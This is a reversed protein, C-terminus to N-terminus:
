TWEWKALNEVILKSLAFNKFSPEKLLKMAEANIEAIDFLEDNIETDEEMLDMFKDCFKNFDKDNNILDFVDKDFNKTSILGNKTVLFKSLPTEPESYEFWELGYEAALCLYKVFKITAFRLNFSDDSFQSKAFTADKNKKNEKPGPYNFEFEEQTSFDHGFIRPQSFATVKSAIVRDYQEIFCKEVEFTETTKEQVIDLVDFADKVDTGLIRNYRNFFRKKIKDVFTEEQIVVELDYYFIVKEDDTKINVKVGKNNVYTIIRGEITGPFAVAAVYQGQNNVILSLYYNYNVANEALEDQDTGSFFSSMTNHSHIHGATMELLEPKSHLGDMFLPSGFDYSTYTATGKDMLLIHEPKCVFTSPDELQGESTHYLVGSWEVSPIKSCLYKIQNHFAPTIIVKGKLQSIL